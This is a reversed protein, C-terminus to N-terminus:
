VVSKRDRFTKGMETTVVKAYVEKEQELIAAAKLMWSAREGLPVKRYSQFTDAARQLKAEIEAGSSSEFSKILQGTSPNVTAIAM